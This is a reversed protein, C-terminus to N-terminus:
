NVLAHTELKGNKKETAKKMCAKGEIFLKGAPM